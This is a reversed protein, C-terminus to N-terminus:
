RQAGGSGLQESYTGDWDRDRITDAVITAVERVAELHLQLMAQNRELKGRLSRLRAAIDEDLVGGELARAALGLELLAQSKRNNTDKLDIESRSRLAETEQDVLLEIRRMTTTMSNMLARRKREVGAENAM